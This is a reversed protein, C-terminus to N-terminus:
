LYALLQQPLSADDAVAAALPGQPLVQKLLFTPTTAAM